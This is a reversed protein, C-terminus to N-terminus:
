VKVWIHVEGAEVDVPYVVLRDATLGFASEGTDLRFEYGHSPCRVVGDVLGYHYEGPASPMMTGKIEGFCIQAAMHPCSNRMAFLGNQTRVVAISKGHVTVVKFRNLEFEAVHGVRVRTRGRRPNLIEHSAHPEPRAVNMRDGQSGM